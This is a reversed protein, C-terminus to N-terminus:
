WVLSISSDADGGRLVEEGHGDRGTVAIALGAIGIGTQKLRAADDDDRESHLWIMASDNSRLTSATFVISKEGAPTKRIEHGKANTISTYLTEYVAAKAEPVLLEVVRIGQAGCPHGTVAPDTFPLHNVPDSGSKIFFPADGRGTSYFIEDPTNDAEFYEAWSTTWEVTTGNQTTRGGTQLPGYKVGLGGDGASHTLRKQLNKYTSEAPTPPPSTWAWDILGLRKKAWPHEVPPKKYWNFLELYTGDAFIIGKNRSPAGLHRLILRKNISLEM